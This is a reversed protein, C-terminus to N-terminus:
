RTKYILVTRAASATSPVKGFRFHFEGSFKGKAKRFAKVLDPGLPDTSHVLLTGKAPITKSVVIAPCTDAFAFHEAMPGAFVEGGVRVVFSFDCSLLGFSIVQVEASSNRVFVDIVLNKGQDRFKASMSLKNSELNKQGLVGSTLLAFVLIACPFFSSPLHRLNM